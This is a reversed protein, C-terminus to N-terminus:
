TKMLCSPHLIADRLLANLIASSFTGRGVIVFLRDPANIDRKGIEDIFPDLLSSSGGGNNRIDVVLKEVRAVPNIEVDFESGWDDEFRFIAKDIDTVIGLGYLIEPLCMYRPIVLKLQEKNEHPIIEILREIVSEVTKGNIEVLRKYVVPRYKQEANIAYIGDQLWYLALPYIKSTEIYCDTHTDGISALIKKIDIRIEVDNMSDLSQILGEM